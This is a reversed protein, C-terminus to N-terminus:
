IIKRRSQFNPFEKVFDRDATMRIKFEKLSAPGDCLYSNDKEEATRVAKFLKDERNVPTVLYYSFINTQCLAWKKYENRKNVSAFAIDAGLPLQTESQPVIECFFQQTTSGNLITM